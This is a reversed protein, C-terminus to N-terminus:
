YIEKDKKNKYYLYIITIFTISSIIIVLNLNKLNHNEDLLTNQNSTRDIMINMSPDIIEFSTSM